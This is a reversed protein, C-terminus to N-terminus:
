YVRESVGSEQSPRDPWAWAILVMALGGAPVVMPWWLKLTWHVLVSFIFWVLPIILLAWRARRPWALLLVATSVATMDPTMGPLAIAWWTGTEYVTMWSLALLVAVWCILVVPRIGGPPPRLALLALLLAELAFVWALPGIPWNIPAYFQLMFVAATLGWGAAMVIPVLRRLGSLPQFLLVPVAALLAVVMWLGRGPWANAREFLRLYVEPTFMLFDSLAYEM